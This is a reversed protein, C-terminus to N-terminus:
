KKLEKAKAIQRKWWEKLFDDNIVPNKFKPKKEPKKDM